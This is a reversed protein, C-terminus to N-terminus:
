YNNELQIIEENIQKKPDDSLKLELMTLSQKNENLSKTIERAQKEM